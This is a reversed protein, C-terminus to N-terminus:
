VGHAQVGQFYGERRAFLALPLPEHAPGATRPITCPQEQAPGATKPMTFHFTTGVGLESELWLKGDHLEVIRAVIALGVGTGSPHLTKGSPLRQFLDFIKDHAAQPIGVGNDQVVIEWWQQRDVAAIRVCPQRDAPTYKVANDILNTFVQAMRSPNACVVPLAVECIVEAGRATLTHDLQEVVAKIIEALQVPKFDVESHGVRALELLDDLLLHMKQANASIRELYMHGGEDLVAGYDEAMMTAMGQLSVLPAKLDHAVTYVFTEQEHTKAELAKTRADLRRALSALNDQAQKRELAYLISRELLPADTKGKILYDAAGAKVAEVDIDHDHLGTMLILPAPWGHEVAQRLVDLGTHAGLRYDVLYVEHEQRRMADLAGEYTAEWELTFRVRESEALLDRTIVYDDEDDEVLLVRLEQRNPM